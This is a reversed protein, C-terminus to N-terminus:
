KRWVRKRLDPWFERFINGASDLALSISGREFGNRVTGIRDPRWHNSLLGAGYASGVRWVAFTTRGSDTRTVFTQSLAHRLRPLLGTAETRFYRPDQRLTSDIGFALMNRVGNYGLSSGYRRGYGAMGGGWEAPEARWHQIGAAAASRLFAVPKVVRLAHVELKGGVSLRNEPVPAPLLGQAALLSACAPLGALGLPRM